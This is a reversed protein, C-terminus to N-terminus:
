LKRIGEQIRVRDNFRESALQCETATPYRSMVEYRIAKEPTFSHPNGPALVRTKMREILEPALAGNCVIGGIVNHGLSKALDMGLLLSEAGHRSEAYYALTCFIFANSPPLKRLFAEAEPDLGGKNVWYGFALYDYTNLDQPIGEKIDLFQSEIPGFDTELEHLGDFIARAVRKTCGTLSSYLICIKM